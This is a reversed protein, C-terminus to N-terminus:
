ARVEPYVQAFIQEMLASVRLIDRYAIPPETDNEICQYFETLLTRM